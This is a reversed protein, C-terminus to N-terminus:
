FRWRLFTIRGCGKENGAELAKRAMAEADTFRNRRRYLNSLNGM